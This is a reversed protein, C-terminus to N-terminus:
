YNKNLKESFFLFGFVIEFTEIKLWVFIGLQNDRVLVRMDIMCKLIGKNHPQEGIKM